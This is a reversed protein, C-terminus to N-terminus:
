SIIDTFYNIYGTINHHPLTHTLHPSNFLVFYEDIKTLDFVFCCFLCFCHAEFTLCIKKKMNFCLFYVWTFAYKCYSTYIIKIIIVVGVFRFSLIIFCLLFVNLIYLFPATTHHSSITWTLLSIFHGKSSYLELSLFIFQWWWQCKNFPHLLFLETDMHVYM